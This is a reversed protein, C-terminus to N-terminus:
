MKIDIPDTSIPLGVVKPDRSSEAHEIHISFM